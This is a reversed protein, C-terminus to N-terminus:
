LILKKELLFLSKRVINKWEKIMMWVMFKQQLVNQWISEKIMEIKKSPAWKACLSVSKDDELLLKDNLLKNSFLKMEYNKNITSVNHYYTIYLLDKWCGYKDIYNILNDCYTVFKYKRLWMMAQNAVKKEKKGNVRDRGNFIIAVTKTPDEKWCKELYEYSVKKDLDRVFLMFYDVIYSGTTKLSVAGNTTTIYSM